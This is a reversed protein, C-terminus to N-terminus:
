GHTKSRSRELAAFEDPPVFEVILIAPQFGAATATVRAQITERVSRLEVHAEGESVDVTRRSLAGRDTRFAVTSPLTPYSGERYGHGLRRGHHDHFSATIRLVSEGDAPIEPRGADDRPTEITSLHIRGDFLPKTTLEVIKEGVVRGSVRLPNMVNPMAFEGANLAELHRPDTVQLHADAPAIPAPLYQTTSSRFHGLIEGTQQNYTVFHHLGIPKMM